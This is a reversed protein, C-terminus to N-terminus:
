EEAGEETPSCSLTWTWVPLGARALTADCTAMELSGSVMRPRAHILHAAQRLLAIEDAANCLASVLSSAAVPQDAHLDAALLRLYQVSTRPTYEPGGRHVSEGPRSSTTHNDAWTQPPTLNRLGTTLRQVYAPGDIERFFDRSKHAIVPGPSHSPLLPIKKM